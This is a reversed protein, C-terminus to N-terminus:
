EEAPVIRVDPNPISLFTLVFNFNERTHAGGAACRGKDENGNYFLAHCKGCYRWENQRLGRDSVDHPLVFIFGAAGHGGGAPCAGKNAYGDFFMAQCKHCNRWGGQAKPSEPVDHPINYNRGEGGVHAGGAACRGKKPFGGYFLVGCKECRYWQSQNGAARAKTSMLNLLCVAAAGIACFRAVSGLFSRRSFIREGQNSRYQPTKM